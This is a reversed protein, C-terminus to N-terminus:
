LYIKKCVKFLNKRCMSISTLISGHVFLFSKIFRMVQISKDVNIVNGEFYFVELTNDEFRTKFDNKDFKEGLAM